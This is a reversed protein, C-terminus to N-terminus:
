NRSEVGQWESSNNWFYLFLRNETRWTWGRVSRLFAFLFVIPIPIPSFEFIFNFVGTRARLFALHPSCCLDLSVRIKEFTTTKRKTANATRRLEINLGNIGGGRLGTLKREKKKKKKNTQLKTLPIDSNRNSDHTRDQAFERARPSRKGVNAQIGVVRSIDFYLTLDPCESTWM